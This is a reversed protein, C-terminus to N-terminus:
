EPERCLRLRPGWCGQPQVGLSSHGTLSRASLHAWWGTEPDPGLLHPRSTNAENILICCNEPSHTHSLVSSPCQSCFTSLSSALFSPWPGELGGTWVVQPM